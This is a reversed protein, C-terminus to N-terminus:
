KPGPTFPVGLMGALRGAIDKMSIEPLKGARIKPGWAVYVARYRTPWHGHNGTERPKERERGTEGGAFMVYPASEYVVEAKALAPSFRELEQLPIQRGIGYGEAKLQKLLAAASPTEASVIGGQARVGSVGRAKAVAELRIEEEVREFGHDSVLVFNYGGPLAQLMEGILGDIHELTANAERSFPANDHAESDLDVLHVLILDPHYSKLIYLTAQTRNRDTMWQQPFSPYTGAIKQVLDPPNSKSEISRIDMDPGRRGKFYEPLNYTSSANVTVPWTVTASTRGAAKLADLLTRAHLLSVDWYYEGGQSPPRRNGLIGHVAPDVGSIMTTHSPWTVTPVVGIVGQSVQGERMLRRINPIRLGLTDADALYRNDLGDVSVVLVHGPTQAQAGMTLAILISLRLHLKM